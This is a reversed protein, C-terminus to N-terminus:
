PQARMNFYTVCYQFIAMVLAIAAIVVALIWINRKLYDLGGFLEAFRAFISNPAKDDIVSDITFSIVQPIVVNLFTTILSAAISALFLLKCGRLFYGLMGTRTYKQKQTVKEM